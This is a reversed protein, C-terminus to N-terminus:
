AIQLPANQDQEFFRSRSFTLRLYIIIDGQTSRLTERAFRPPNKEGEPSLIVSLKKDNELVYQKWTGKRTYNLYSKSKSKPRMFVLKPKIRRCRM